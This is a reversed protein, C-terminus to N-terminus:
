SNDVVVTWGTPVGNDGVTTWTAESSKVFTGTSAVGKVWSNTYSNTPTTMFLAKIYNLSSCNQFMYQYCCSALKTAPLEPASTLMNCGYFMYYYCYKALTTAPLEPALTLSHCYQFMYEYCSEALATAPLKPAVTLNSCDKFMKSYCCETLTTAPLEPATTLSTCGNFMNAYCSYALRTVPLKPAVTLEKCGGFMRTYCNVSLTDESLDLGSADVVKTGDFLSMFFYFSGKAYLSYPHGSVNCTKATTFKYYDSSTGSFPVANETARFYIKKGTNIAPSSTNADLTQWTQKGDISISIEKNLQFTNGDELSTFCIPEYEGGGEGGGTPISDVLSPYDDLTDESPVTVGKNEIASKLAAKANQLRTIETAISM